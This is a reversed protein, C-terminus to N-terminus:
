RVCRFGVNDYAYDPTRRARVAARATQSTVNWAGGKMVRGLGQAPGLPDRQPSRAYYDPVYWDAVWEWVNGAMDLAGYPSAGAPFGGVVTTDGVQTNYNLLTQGPMSSGWPYPRGDTGRAAKEWQAETPLLGGAWRCYAAADYWTVFIVPYAAYTSNGYYADRTYSSMRGPPRCTSAQVCRAYMANTVETRDIGYSDLYVTHLPSEGPYADPDSALSGMLFDGAPVMVEAMGDAASVRTTAAGACAALVLELLLLLGALARRAASASAVSAARRAYLPLSFRRAKAAVAVVWTGIEVCESNM